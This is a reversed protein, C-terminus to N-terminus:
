RGEEGEFQRSEPIVESEMFQIFDPEYQYKMEEWKERFRPAPLPGEGRILKGWVVTPLQDRTLRGARFESYEWAFRLLYSVYFGHEQWREASTLQSGDALKAILSAFEPSSKLLDNNSARNEALAYGAQAKLLTTNQQLEIALFVIGAIVGVNALVGITQVLDVKKM